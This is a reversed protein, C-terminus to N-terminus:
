PGGRALDHAEANEILASNVLDRHRAICGALVHRPDHAALLADHQLHEGIAVLRLVVAEVGADVCRDRCLPHRGVRDRLDHADVGVRGVEALPHPGPVRDLEEEVHLALVLADVTLDPLQQCRGDRRRTIRVLEVAERRAVARGVEVVRLPAGRALEEHATGHAPLIHSKM